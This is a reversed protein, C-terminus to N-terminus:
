LDHIKSIESCIKSGDSAFISSTDNCDKPVDCKNRFSYYRCKGLHETTLPATLGYRGFKIWEAMPVDIYHKCEYWMPWDCGKPMEKIRYRGDDCCSGKGGKEEYLTAM